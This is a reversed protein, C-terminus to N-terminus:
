EKWENLPCNVLWCTKPYSTNFEQLRVVVKGNTNRQTGKAHYWTQLKGNYSELYDMIQEFTGVIRFRYSEGEHPGAKITGESEWIWRLQSHRYEAIVEERTKAKSSRLWDGAGTKKEAAERYKTQSIDLKDGRKANFDSWHMWSAHSSLVNERIESVCGNKGTGNPDYMSARVAIMLKFYRRRVITDPMIDLKKVVQRMIRYNNGWKKLAAQLTLATKEDISNLM